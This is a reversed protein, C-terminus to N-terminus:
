CYSQKSQESCYSYSKRLFHSFVYRRLNKCFVESFVCTTYKYILEFKLVSRAVFDLAISRLDCSIAVTFEVKSNFWWINHESITRLRKDGKNVKSYRGSSKLM